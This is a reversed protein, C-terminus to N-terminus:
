TVSPHLASAKPKFHEPLNRGLANWRQAWSTEECLWGMMKIFALMKKESLRDFLFLSVLEFIEAGDFQGMAVYMLTKVLKKM